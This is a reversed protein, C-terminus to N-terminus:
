IFKVTCRKKFFCIGCCIVKGDKEELTEQAYEVM